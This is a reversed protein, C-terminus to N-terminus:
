GTRFLDPAKLLFDHDELRKAYLADMARAMEVPKARAREPNGLSIMSLDTEYLSIVWNDFTTLERALSLFLSDRPNFLRARKGTDTVGKLRVLVTELRRLERQAEKVKEALAVFIQAVWRSADEKSIQNEAVYRRIVHFAGETAMEHALKKMDIDAM